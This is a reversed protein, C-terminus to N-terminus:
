SRSRVTLVPITSARVTKEAVSGLLLHEMATRGHTGLVILDCGLRKAVRLVEVSPKPPDLGEGDCVHIHSEKLRGFHRDAFARLRKRAAHQFEDISLRRWAATGSADTIWATDIVTLVHVQAKFQRALPAAVKAAANACASFDTAVLIRRIPKM